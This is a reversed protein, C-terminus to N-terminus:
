FSAGGKSVVQDTGSPVRGELDHLEGPTVMGAKALVADRRFELVLERDREINADLEELRDVPGGLRWLEVDSGAGSGCLYEPRQKKSNKEL